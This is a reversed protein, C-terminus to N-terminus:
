PAFGPVFMLHSAEVDTIAHRKPIAAQYADSAYWQNAAEASPFRIVVTWNQTYEGELLTVQPTAIVVEGGAASVTPGAAAGYDNMLADFDSVDLSAFMYTAGAPSTPDPEPSFAPAFLLKSTSTDTVAHRLPIAEQYEPSAYWSTAADESPFRILVTWNQMYEGELVEVSPSAAYVVGGADLVTPPAANGYGGMFADFDEIDLSAILFTAADHNGEDPMVDPVVPEPSTSCGLAYLTLVLLAGGKWGQWLLSNTHTSLRGMIADHM